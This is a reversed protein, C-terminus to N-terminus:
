LDDNQMCGDYHYEDDGNGDGDDNGNWHRADFRIRGEARFNEQIPHLLNPLRQAQFSAARGPHPAM